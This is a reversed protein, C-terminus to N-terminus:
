ISNSRKVSFYNVAILNPLLESMIIWLLCIEKIWGITFSHCTEPTFIDRISLESMKARLSFIAHLLKSMKLWTFYTTLLAIQTTIIAKPPLKSMKMWSIYFESAWTFTLSISFIYHNCCLICLVSQYISKQFTFSSYHLDVGWRYLNTWSLTFNFAFYSFIYLNIKNKARVYFLHSDLSMNNMPTAMQSASWLLNM